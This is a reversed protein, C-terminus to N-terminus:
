PMKRKARFQNVVRESAGIRHQNKLVIETLLDVRSSLESLSEDQLNDGVRLAHMEAEVSKIREIIQTVDMTETPFNIATNGSVRLISPKVSPAVKFWCSSRGREHGDCVWVRWGTDTSPDRLCNTVLYPKDLEIGM